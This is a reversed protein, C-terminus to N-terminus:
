DGRISDKLRIKKYIEGPLKKLNEIVKKVNEPTNFDTKMYNLKGVWIPHPSPGGEVGVLKMVLITKKGNSIISTKKERSYHAALNRDFYQFPLYSLHAFNLFFYKIYNIIIESNQNPKVNNLAKLFLAKEKLLIGQNLEIIKDSELNLLL